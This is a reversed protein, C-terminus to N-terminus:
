YYYYYYYNDYYIYIYMYIYIYISVTISICIMISIVIISLHWRRRPLSMQPDDSCSCFWKLTDFGMDLYMSDPTLGHGTTFGGTEEPFPHTCSNFAGTDTLFKFVHVKSFRGYDGRLACVPSPRDAAAAGRRRPEPRALGARPRQAIRDTPATKNDNNNDNNDNHNDYNNNNINIDDNSHTYM